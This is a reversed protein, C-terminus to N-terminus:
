EISLPDAASSSVFRTPTSSAPGARIRSSEGICTVASRPRAENSQGGCATPKVTAAGPVGLHLLELGFEGM